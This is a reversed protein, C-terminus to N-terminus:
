EKNGFPGTKPFGERGGRRKAVDSAKIIAARATPPLLNFNWEFAM